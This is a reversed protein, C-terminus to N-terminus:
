YAGGIFVDKGYTIREGVRTMNQPDIIKMVNRLIPKRNHSAVVPCGHCLNLTVDIDRETIIAALVAPKIGLKETQLQDTAIHIPDGYHVFRSFIFGTTPKIKTKQQKPAVLLVQVHM